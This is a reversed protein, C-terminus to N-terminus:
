VIFHFIYLVSSQYPSQLHQQFFTWRYAKKEVGLCVSLPTGAGFQKQKTFFVSVPFEMRLRLEKVEPGPGWTVVSNTSFVILESLLIVIIVESISVDSMM